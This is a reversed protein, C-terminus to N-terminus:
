RLTPFVEGTHFEEQRKETLDNFFMWYYSFSMFRSFVIKRHYVQKRPMIKYTKITEEPLSFPLIMSLM